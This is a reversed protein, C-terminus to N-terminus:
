VSSLDESLSRLETAQAADTLNATRLKNQLAQLVGATGTVLMSLNAIQSQRVDQGQQVLQLNRRLRDALTQLQEQAAGSSSRLRTEAEKLQRQLESASLLTPDSHQLRQIMQDIKGPLEVARDCAYQVAVLLEMQSANTLLRTVELRFAGTKNALSRAQQQIAQVQKELEPDGLNLSQPEHSQRLMAVGAAVGTALPLMVVSPLHSIRVGVVLVVAGALM